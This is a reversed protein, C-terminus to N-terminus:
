GDEESRQGFSVANDLLLREVEGMLAGGVGQPQYEPEVGFYSIGEGTRRSNTEVVWPLLM